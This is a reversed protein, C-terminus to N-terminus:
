ALLKGLNEVEHEAEVLEFHGSRGQLVVEAVVSAGHTALRQSEADSGVVLVGDDGDVEGVSDAEKVSTGSRHEDREGGGGGGKNAIYSEILKKKSYLM